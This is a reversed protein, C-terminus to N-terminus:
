WEGGTNEMWRIEEDDTLGDRNEDFPVVIEFGDVEQREVHLGCYGCYWNGRDKIIEGKCSPCMEIM